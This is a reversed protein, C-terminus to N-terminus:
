PEYTPAVYQYRFGISIIMSSWLGDSILGTAPPSVVETLVGNGLNQMRTKTRIDEAMTRIPGYGDKALGFFHIDITGLETFHNASPAGVSRVAEESEADEVAIFPSTRQNINDLLSDWEVVPVTSSSDILAKIAEYPIASSM